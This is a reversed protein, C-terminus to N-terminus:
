KVASAPDSLGGNEITSGGGFTVPLRCMPCARFWVTMSASLSAPEQDAM